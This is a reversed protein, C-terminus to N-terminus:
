EDLYIGADGASMGLRELRALGEDRTFKQEGVAKKIQAQTLSRRVVDRERDWLALVAPQAEASVGLAALDGPVDTTTTEGDVYSKHLASWLQAEAKTVHADAKSGGGGAWRAAVKSALAPQWGEDLLIGHAEEESVDGSQTLARLVFAGPLTYRQAWALNYWEPRINSEQLSKLFAPDIEGTPGDYVGGRRLGIFVQHFALPRGSLKALLDADASEMGSLAAGSRMAGDDIWGRLRAEVYEHPTLLRRRLNLVVDMYENRLNSQAVARKVDSEQVKGMNLLHMMEILGPPLGTNGVLIRLREADIGHSAAESVPDLQSQPVQEVTGAGTPPEQIILGAGRMIGRHIATAIAGLDLRDDKLSRLADDWEVELGTRRLATVFQADTLDDRRWAQYAYGLAPGVNAIAVMADFQKGGYGHEAAWARADDADVQGQAVGEALLGAEPARITAVKWAEQALAVGIPELARGSAFGAAFAVAEGITNLGLEGLSSPLAM